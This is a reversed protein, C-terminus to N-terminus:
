AAQKRRQWLWYIPVGLALILVGILTNQPYKYVSAAAVAWSALAFLATTWPHGPVRFGEAKANPGERLRFIFLCTATLGWFLADMAIVYSLIQEYRSSLAIVATWVSQLVIAAIPVRTRPHVQAVARFFLGDEAMAFYVRPATLVSQSLFGVTSLAIGAAIFKMGAAGLAVEMVSTAPRDTAALGAPGLARVCAINVLVYLLVVGAVGVLLARALNRRPDRIEAAVFNSTQWGGYAFVVPVMAAGFAALLGFSPPQDLVPRGVPHPTRVLFIGAVVLAAIAAIRALMLGSQVRAGIKVGLCNILTLLALTVLAVVKPSVPMPWLALFYNAFTVTVAAMGGTQIVLLLVWGYLFGLAPHYAARLYAYQGGVDPMRAGLEAYVFAGLLAIVGGALWAGIILLPTHVQRAVVYPNMFIGSGVIGGMVLMTADFLGVARILKPQSESTSVTAM